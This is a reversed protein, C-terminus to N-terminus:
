VHETSHTLPIFIISLVGLGVYVLPALWWPIVKRLFVETRLRLQLVVVSM